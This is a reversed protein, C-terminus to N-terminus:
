RAVKVIIRDGEEVSWRRFAGQNVELAGRYTVTPEYLPCPDARCPDMDLIRVIRGRDDWFAISLPILTNKMWFGGTQNETYLFVMGADRPLTERFMLGFQRREDTDAVEVDLEVRGVDTEIVATTREFFPATPTTASAASTQGGASQGGCAALAILALALLSPANRM